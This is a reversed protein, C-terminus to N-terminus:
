LKFQKKNKKLFPEKPLTEYLRNQCNAMIELLIQQDVNIQNHFYIPNGEVEKYGPRDKRSERYIRTVYSFTQSSSPPYNHIRLQGTDEWITNKDIAYRM